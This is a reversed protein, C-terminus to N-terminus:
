ADGRARDQGVELSEQPLQSRLLGHPGRRAGQAGIRAGSGRGLRQPGAHNRQHSVVNRAGEFVHEWSIDGPKALAMASHDRDYVIRSPRQNAGAELYYVGLRGSGSCDAFHRRRLAAARGRCCGRDPQGAIRNCLQCAIRIVRASCSRQSGRRWVDGRIPSDPSVARFGPSGPAAHNRWVHGGEDFRTGAPKRRDGRHVPAGSRHHIQFRRDERRGHPERRRGAGRQRGPDM